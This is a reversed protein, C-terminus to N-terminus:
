KVNIGISKLYDIKEKTKKNYMFFFDINYKAYRDTESKSLPYGRKVKNNVYESITKFRYHALYANKYTFNNINCGCRRIVYNSPIGETNCFSYQPSTRGHAGIYTYEKGCRIISKVQPPRININNFSIRTFRENLPKNEYYIQDNDDYVAWAVKISDFNDFIHDSVFNKIDNNYKHDLVLYEDVDFFCMWDCEKSYKEYADHYVYAQLFTHMPNDFPHIGRVNIVKVFGSKIYDDIVDDFQEGDIDNNDYLIVKDINLDKYHEIFDRIYLNEMKAIVVLYVKM